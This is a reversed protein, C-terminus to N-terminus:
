SSAEPTRAEMPPATLRWPAPPDLLHAALDMGDREAVRLRTTFWDILAEIARPAPAGARVRVSVAHRETRRFARAAHETPEVFVGVEVEGARFVAAPELAEPARSSDRPKYYLTWGGDGLSVGVSRPPAPAFPLLAEVCRPDYGPLSRVCHWGTDARPERLAVFFARARVRGGDVDFSLIGGADAREARAAAALAQADPGLEGALAVADASQVYLKIEAIGDARANMGVVAAPESGVAVAPALAASIRARTARSADSANVYLKACRQEGGDRRDWGVIVPVDAAAAVEFWGPVAAPLTVGLARAIADLVEASGREVMMRGAGPQHSAAGRVSAEYSAPDRATVALAAALEAGDVPALSAAVRRALENAAAALNSGRAAQPEAPRTGSDVFPQDSAQMSLDTGQTGVWGGDVRASPVADKFNRRLRCARDLRIAGFGM